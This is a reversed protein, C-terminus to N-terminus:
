LGLIVIFFWLLCLIILDTQNNKMVKRDYVEYKGLAIGLDEYIKFSRNENAKSLTSNAVLGGIGLHYLKNSNAKLCLLTDSLSEPEHHLLLVSCLMMDNLATVIELATYDQLLSELDPSSIVQSM